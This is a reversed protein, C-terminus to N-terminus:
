LFELEEPKWETAPRLGGPILDPTNLLLNKLEARVPAPVSRPLAVTVFPISETEGVVRFAGPRGAIDDLGYRACYSSVVAADAEGELVAVTAQVCGPFEQMDAAKIGNKRLLRNVAHSNEYSASRGIALKRGALHQLSTLPGDSAAIFVGSLRLQGDPMAVDCLRECDSGSARCARLVTWTKAVLGDVEGRQVAGALEDELKFHILRIELGARRAMRVLADYQRVHEAGACSSSTERCFPENVGIRLVPSFIKIERRVPDAALIRGKSDVALRLTTCAPDFHEPGLIALLKGDPEYVKVRANAKEATVIEGNPTLALNVPNCCGVFDEPNRQGFKGFHGLPSGDLKWASVRHRGSDAARVVGNADVDFDLSRNPLIFTRTKNQTGIEGLQRGTSDYRRIYRAAADAVLIEDGFVRIATISAPKGADGVSFGGARKGADDLIEVRGPAGLYVHGDPGVALCRARDPAKWRKVVSTDSALVRIEGDGLAYIWDGPGVAIGLFSRDFMKVAVPKSYERAFAAEAPNPPAATAPGSPAPVATKPPVPPTPRFKLAAAVFAGFAGVVAAPPFWKKQLRDWFPNLSQNSSSDM